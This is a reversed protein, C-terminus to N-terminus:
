PEDTYLKVWQNVLALADNPICGFCGIKVADSKTSELLDQYNRM